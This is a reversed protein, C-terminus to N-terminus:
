KGVVLNRFSELICLFVEYVKCIFATHSAIAFYCWGEPFPKVVFKVDDQLHVEVTVEEDHTVVDVPRLGVIDRYSRSSARTCAGKDGVTDVDSVHIRYFVVKEEFAEEVRFSDGHRIEVYVEAEFAAAFDYLIHGFMVALVSDSLDTSESCQLCLRYYLIHCTDEVNREVFGRCYTFEDGIFRLHGYVFGDGLFRFELFDYVPATHIRLKEVSSATQFSAGTM